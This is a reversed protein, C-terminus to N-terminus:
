STCGSSEPVPFASARSTSSAFRLLPHPPTPISVGRNTTGGPDGLGNQHWLDVFCGSARGAMLASQLENENIRVKYAFSPSNRVCTYQLVRCRLVSELFLKGGGDTERSRVYLLCTGASQPQVRIGQEQLGSSGEAYAWVRSKFSVAGRWCWCNVARSSLCMVRGLTATSTKLNMSGSTLGMERSKRDM